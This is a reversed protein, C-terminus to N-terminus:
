WSIWPRRAGRASREIQFASPRRRKITRSRGSQRADPSPVRPMPILALASAEHFERYPRWQEDGEAAVFTEDGIMASARLEKVASFSM